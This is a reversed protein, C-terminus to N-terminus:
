WRRYVGSQYLSVVLESLRHYRDLTPLARVIEEATAAQALWEPRVGLLLAVLKTIDGPMSGADQTMARVTAMVLRDGQELSERIAPLHRDVLMLYPLLLLLLRTGDEMPLPRLEVSRGGVQM